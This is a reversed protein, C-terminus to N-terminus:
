TRPPPNPPTADHAAGRSDAEIITIKQWIKRSGMM